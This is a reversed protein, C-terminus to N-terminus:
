TNNNAADYSDYTLVILAEISWLKAEYSQIAMIALSWCVFEAPRSQGHALFSALTPPFFFHKTQSQQVTVTFSAHPIMVVALMM